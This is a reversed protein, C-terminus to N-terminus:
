GRKKDKNKKLSVAKINDLHAYFEEIPTTLIHKLYTQQKMVPWVWNREDDHSLHWCVCYNCKYPRLFKLDKNPGFYKREALPLSEIKHLKHIWEVKAELETKHKSKKRCGHVEQPSYRKNLKKHNEM